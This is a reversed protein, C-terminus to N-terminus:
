REIMESTAEDYCSPIMSTPFDPYNELETCSIVGNGDWVLQWDGAVKAAFWMGGGLGEKGAGGKAYDGAVESVTVDLEAAQTGHKAILAQQIATEISDSAVVSFIGEIDYKQWHDTSLFSLPTITGTLTVPSGTAFETVDANDGLDLAYYEGTQTQFGFACELTIPGTQDKHPLCTYQGTLTAQYPAPPVGPDQKQDYIYNNFVVFLVVVAAVIGLAILLYKM